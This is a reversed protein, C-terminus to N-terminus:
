GGLFDQKGVPVGAQRLIAYATTVHFYFNPLAFQTLFDAGTFELTMSPFKLVVQRTEAGDLAKPDVSNFYAITKAIRAHLDAITTENDEFAPAAEGTLRAIALKSTDSARQIQGSLPLMDAALRGDFLDGLDTGTEAAHAEAKTLIKDLMSMGRVFAPVSLQYVSLSM